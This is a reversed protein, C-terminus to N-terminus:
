RAAPMQPRPAALLAAASAALVAALAPFAIGYGWSGVLFGTLVPGITQGVDMITRLVGVSAGLQGEKAFDAVLASTSSTVTAFGIGFLLSLVSLAVIEHALPLAGVSVIGIALGPAIIARRGLRDS